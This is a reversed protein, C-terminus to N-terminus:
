PPDKELRRKEALMVRENIEGVWWALVSAGALTGFWFMVAMETTEIM